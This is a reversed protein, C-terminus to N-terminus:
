DGYIESLTLIVDLPLIQMLRSALEFTMGTYLTNYSNWGDVSSVNCEQLNTDMPPIADCLAQSLRIKLLSRGSSMINFEASGTSADKSMAGSFSLCKRDSAMEEGEYAAGEWLMRNGSETLNCTWVGIASPAYSEKVYAFADTKNATWERSEGKVLTLHDKTKRQIRYEWWYNQHQLGLGLVLCLEDGNLGISITALQSASKMATCSAGIMEGKGNKVRRLIYRHANDESVQENLADFQKLTEVPNKGAVSVALSMLARCEANMVESIASAVGQDDLLWTDCITGGEYADGHFVGNATVPESDALWSDIAASIRESISGSDKKTDTQNTLVSTLVYGPFLTSTVYGTHEDEYLTGDLLSVGNLKAEVKAAEDQSVIDIQLNELLAGIAKAYRAADSETMQCLGMLLKQTYSPFTQTDARFELTLKSSEALVSFPLLLALLLTLLRKM